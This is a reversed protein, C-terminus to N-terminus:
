KKVVVQVEAAAWSKASTWPSGSYVERYAGVSKIEHRKKQWRLWDYIGHYIVRPHIVKPDFTVSAVTSAPFSRLRVTGEGKVRGMVEIGVTFTRENDSELFVWRGTRLKRKACWALLGDFKARTKEDSWTGSWTTTAATFAKARKYSFDVTM